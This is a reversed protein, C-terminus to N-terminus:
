EIGSLDLDSFNVSDDADAAAGPFGTSNARNQESFFNFEVDTDDIETGVIPEELFLTMVKVPIYPYLFFNDNGKARKTPSPCRPPTKERFIMSRSQNKMIEVGAM